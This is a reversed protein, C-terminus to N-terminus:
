NSNKSLLVPYISCPLLTFTCIPIVCRVFLKFSVSYIFLNTITAFSLLLMKQHLIISFMWNVLLYVCRGTTIDHDCNASGLPHLTIKQSDVQCMHTACVKVDCLVLSILKAYNAQFRKNSLM